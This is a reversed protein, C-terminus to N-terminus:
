VRSRMNTYTQACLENLKHILVPANEVKKWYKPSNKDFSLKLEDRILSNFIGETYVTPQDFFVDFFKELIGDKKCLDFCELSKQGFKTALFIGYVTITKNGVVNQKKYILIYECLELQNQNLFGYIIKLDSYRTKIEQILDMYTKDINVVNEMIDITGYPIIKTFRTKPM